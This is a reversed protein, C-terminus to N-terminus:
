LKRCASRLFATWNRHNDTIQGATHEYLGTILQYKAAM